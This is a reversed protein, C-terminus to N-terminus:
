FAYSVSLSLIHTIPRYYGSLNVGLEQGVENEIRRKEGVSGLYAFDLILPANCYGLGCSFAYQKTRVVVTDFTREPIPSEMLGLGSRLTLHASVEYEAGLGYFFANHWDRSVTQDQFFVDDKKFDIEIERFTKWGTWDIDLELKLEPLPHFAYGFTAYPPFHIESSFRSILESLPSVFSPIQTLRANGDYRVDIGSRFSLGFSHRPSPKYLLGANYGWGDGYGKSRFSGDFGGPSGILAGFDVQRENILESYYYDIGLALSLEPTIQYAVAPNVNILEMEALTSWYRSFGTKSWQSGLGFPSNIGLGFRWPATGFDSCFYAYLPFYEKKLMDERIGDMSKYRVRPAFMSIGILSHTGRLQVLGAPNYHLASPDDAQAVFADAQAIARASQDPIRFGTAGAFSGNLLLSLVLAIGILNFKYM